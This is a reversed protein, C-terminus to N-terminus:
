GQLLAQVCPTAVGSEPSPSGPMTAWGKAEVFEPRDWMGTAKFATFDEEPARRAQAVCIPVLRETVAGQVMRNAGGHTVWDFGPLGFWSFGVAIVVFVTAISSWAIQPPSWHRQNDAM